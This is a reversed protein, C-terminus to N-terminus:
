PLEWGTRMADALRKARPGVQRAWTSQLMRDAADTYRGAQVSHLTDHFGLLGNIGLNFAMNYLVRQRAEDLDQVWPLAEITEVVARATDEDLLDDELDPTIRIGHANINHGVGVTINGGQDRYSELRSGEDRRLQSKLREFGDKTM